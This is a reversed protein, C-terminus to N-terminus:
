VKDQGDNVGEIEIVERRAIHKLLEVVIGTGIDGGGLIETPAKPKGLVRDILYITSERDGGLAQRKLEIFLAPLDQRVGDIAESVLTSINKKRGSKGKKGSGGMYKHGKQFPM